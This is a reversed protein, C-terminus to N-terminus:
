GPPAGRTAHTDFWGPVPRGFARVIAGHLRRGIRTGRLASEAGLLRYALFVRRYKAIAGARDVWPGVDPGFPGSADPEFRFTLPSGDLKRTSIERGPVTGQQVVAFRDYGLRELLSLEEEISAWDTKSAEISVSRPREQFELLTRLCLKDAGEIDVKMFAPVGTRRLMESFDVAPVDVPESEAVILNRAAVEDSTTGWASLPHKYFRVTPGESDTIAGEVITMRGATVESSFRERCIAVLDANAEFAVVRFGKALYFASDEGKHLGVDYVLDDVPEVRDNV